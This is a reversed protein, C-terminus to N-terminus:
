QEELPCFFLSHYKRPLSERERETETETETERTSDSEKKRGEEKERESRVRTEQERSLASRKSVKDLEGKKERTEEEKQERRLCM